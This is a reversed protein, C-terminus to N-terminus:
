PGPQERSRGFPLFVHEGTKNVSGDQNQRAKGEGMARGIRMRM